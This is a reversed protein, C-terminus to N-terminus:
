TFTEGFDIQVGVTTGWATFVKNPFSVHAELITALTQGAATDVARMLTPPTMTEPYLKVQKLVLGNQAPVKLDLFSLTTNRGDRNAVSLRLRFHASATTPQATNPGTLAYWGDRFDVSIRTSRLKGEFECKQEWLTDHVSFSSWGLAALSAVFLIPPVWHPNFKPIFTAGTSVIRLLVFLRGPYTKLLAFLWTKFRSYKTIELAEM